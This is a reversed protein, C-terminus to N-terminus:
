ERGPPERTRRLACRDDHYLGRRIAGMRMVSITAPATLGTTTGNREGVGEMGVEIRTGTTRAWLTATLASNSLGTVTAAARSIRAWAGPRSMM